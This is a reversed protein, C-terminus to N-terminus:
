GQGRTLQDWDPVPAGIHEGTLYPLPNEAAEPGATLWAAFGVSNRRELEDLYVQREAVGSTLKIASTRRQSARYSARWRKCLQEDTLHSLSTSRSFASAPDTCGLAHAVADLQAASPTRVSRVMKNAFTVVPPSGILVATAILLVGAGLAAGYGILAALCSGPVAAGILLLRARGRTTQEWFTDGLCLTVISGVVGLVIFVVVAAGPSTALAAVVGITGLLACTRCWWTRYVNMVTVESECGVLRLGELSRDARRRCLAQARGVDFADAQQVDALESDDPRRPRVKLARSSRFKHERWDCSERTRRRSM